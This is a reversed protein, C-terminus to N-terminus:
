TPAVLTDYKARNSLTKWHACPKKPRHTPIPFTINTCTSTIPTSGQFAKRLKEWSTNAPAVMRLVAAVVAQIPASNLQLIIDKRKAGLAKALYEESSSPSKGYIDATDFFNIDADLAANVCATTTEQDVMSGFMMCGLGVVSVQLDSNGLQKKRM